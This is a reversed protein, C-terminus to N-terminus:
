RSVSVSFTITEQDTKARLPFTGIAFPFTLGYEPDTDPYVITASLCIHSLAAVAELAELRCVFVPCLPNTDSHSDIADDFVSPPCETAEIPPTLAIMPDIPDHGQSGVSFHDVVFSVGTMAQRAWRRRAEDTLAAIINM